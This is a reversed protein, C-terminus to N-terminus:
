GVEGKGEGMAQDIADKLARNPVLDGATLPSRTVPSTSNRRLWDEIATREYSNGEPDM